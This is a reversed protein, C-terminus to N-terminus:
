VGGCQSLFFNYLFFLPTLIKVGADSFTNATLWYCNIKCSIFNASMPGDIIAELKVSIYSISLCIYFLISYILLINLLLWKIM